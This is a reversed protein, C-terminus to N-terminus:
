YDYLAFNMVDDSIPPTNIVVCGPTIKDARRKPPPPNVPANLMMHRAFASLTMHSARARRRIAAAEAASAKFTLIPM